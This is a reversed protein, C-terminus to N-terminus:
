QAIRAFVKQREQVLLQLERLGQQAGKRQQESLTKANIFEDQDLLLTEGNPYVWLDLFLDVQQITNESIQAPETINCYWGKRMDGGGLIEFINFWHETYYYETFLDGPEFQVYGLDHMPLTWYAQIVVETPWSTLVEGTYRIKEKGQPDLKIVTIM